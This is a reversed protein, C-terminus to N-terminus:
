LPVNYLIFDTKPNYTDYLQRASYNFEQTLWRVGALERTKAFEIVHDILARGAGSGRIEPIVYLDSLYCVKSGGLSRHMLQYQTFGIINGDANVAVDCWFDEKADLIWSWVEDFGNITNNEPVATNYFEAYNQFLIEWSQRDDKQLPRITLTM